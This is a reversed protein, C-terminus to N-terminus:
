TVRVILCGTGYQDMLDTFLTKNYEMTDQLKIADKRDMVYIEWSGITGYLSTNEIPYCRLHCGNKWFPMGAFGGKEVVKGSWPNVIEYWVSM